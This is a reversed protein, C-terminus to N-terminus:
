ATSEMPNGSAPPTPKGRQYLYSVLFILGVIVGAVALTVGIWMGAQAIIRDDVAKSEDKLFDDFCQDRKVKDELRECQQLRIAKDVDMPPKPDSM